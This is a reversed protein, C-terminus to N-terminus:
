CEWGNNEVWEELCVKITDESGSSTHAPSHNRRRRKQGGALSSSYRSQGSRHSSSFSPQPSPIPTHGSSFNGPSANGRYDLVSSSSCQASTKVSHLAM